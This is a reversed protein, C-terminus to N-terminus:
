IKFDAYKQQYIINSANKRVEEQYEMASNSKKYIKPEIEDVIQIPILADGKVLKKYKSILFNRTDTRLKITIDGKQKLQPSKKQFWEPDRIIKKPELIQLRPNNLPSSWRKVRETAYFIIDDNM